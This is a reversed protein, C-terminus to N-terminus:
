FTDRWGLTLRWDRDEDGTVSDDFAEMGVSAQVEGFPLPRRHVLSVSEYGTKVAAVTNTVSPAGQRNLNGSAINLL